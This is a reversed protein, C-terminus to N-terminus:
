TTSFGDGLAVWEATTITEPRRKPDIGARELATAGGAHFGRLITGIQKRRHSFAHKLLTDFRASNQLTARQQRVRRLAVIASVVQPRPHFCSPSIRKIIRTEYDLQAWISLLGYDTTDVQACIREAVELQVTIVMMDVGPTAMLMEVLVRSAVSYPLNAIFKNLRHANILESLNVDLADSQLLTLNAQEGLMKSLHEHLRKDKEIAVVANARQLLQATVIGLGPGVELVRDEPSLGAADVMIRLINEDILFNQGLVKSPLFDHRAIWERVASPSTLKPLTDGGADVM